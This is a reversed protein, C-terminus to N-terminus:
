PFTGIRRSARRKPNSNAPVNASASSTMRRYCRRAPNTAAIASIRRAAACTTSRRWCASRRPRRTSTRRSVTIRRPERDRRPDRALGLDGADAAARRGGQLPLGDRRPEARRRPHACQLGAARRPQGPDQLDLPRPHAAPRRADWWLEETTLWGMGQVFAGEIQGLDIAPNLSSAATRCCNPACCARDRRHAHRDRSRRRGRRLRFLLVAARYQHRLGLPDEAHPLLRDGVALRAEGVVTGRARRVLHQPQRCLHPEASFVIEDAPVAFHEAAVETM